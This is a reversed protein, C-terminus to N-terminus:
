RTEAIDEGDSEDSSPQQGLLVNRWATARNCYYGDYGLIKLVCVDVVHSLKVHLDLVKPFDFDGYFATHTLKNRLVGMEKELGVVGLESCLEELLIAAPPANAGRLKSMLARKQEAVLTGIREEVVRLIGLGLEDDLLAQWDAHMFENAKKSLFDIRLREIAIYLCMYQLDVFGYHEAEIIWLLPLKLKNRLSDHYREFVTGLFIQM